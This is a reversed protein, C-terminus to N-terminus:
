YPVEKWGLWYGLMNFARHIVPTLVLLGVMGWLLATDGAIGDWLIFLGFLFAMIAFPLTDLLPAKSSIDGERKLGRRRKVFSGVLDGTMGGAGLVTGLIFLGVWDGAFLYWADDAGTLQSVFPIDGASTRGRVVLEQVIALLGSTLSGGLFGPWTKGDGFIRHGDWATKGMDIRWPTRGLRKPLKGWLMAWTNCLYGPLFVWQVLLMTLFFGWIGGPLDLVAMSRAVRPGAM